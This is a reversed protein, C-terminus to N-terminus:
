DLSRGRKTPRVLDPHHYDTSDEYEVVCRGDPLHRAVVGRYWGRPWRPDDWLVKVSQGPVHRRAPPDPRRSLEVVCFIMQGYVRKERLAVMLHLRQPIELMQDFVQQPCPGNRRSVTAAYVLSSGATSRDAFATAAAEYDAAPSTGGTRASTWTGFADHWILIRRHDAVQGSLGAMAAAISCDVVTVNAAAATGRRMAKAEAPDLQPVVIENVHALHQCTRLSATDLVIALTAGRSLEAVRENAWRKVENNLRRRSCRAALGRM